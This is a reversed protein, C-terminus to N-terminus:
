RARREPTSHKRKSTQYRRAGLWHGWVGVVTYQQCAKEHNSIDIQAETEHSQNQSSPLIRVCCLAHLDRVSILIELGLDLPRNTQLYKQLIESM